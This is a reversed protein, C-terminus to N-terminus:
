SASLDEVSGRGFWVGILMVVLLMEFEGGGWGWGLSCLWGCCLVFRAGRKDM